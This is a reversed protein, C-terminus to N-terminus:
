KMVKQEKFIFHIKGSDSHKDGIVHFWTIKLTM